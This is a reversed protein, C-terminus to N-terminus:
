KPTDHATGVVKVAKAGNMTFNVSCLGDTNLPQLMYSTHFPYYKCIALTAPSNGQNMLCKDDRFIKVGVNDVVGIYPAVTHSLVKYSKIVGDKFEKIVSITGQFDGYDPLGYVWKGDETKGRFLIENMNNDHEWQEFFADQRDTLVLNGDM